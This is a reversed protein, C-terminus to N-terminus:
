FQVNSQGGQNQMIELVLEHYKTKQDKNLKLINMANDITCKTSDMINMINQIMTENIGEEKVYQSFNCM